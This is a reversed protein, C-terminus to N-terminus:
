ARRPVRLREPLTRLTLIRLRRAANGETADVEDRVRKGLLARGLESSLSVQAADLPDLRQTVLKYFRDRGGPDRAVLVPGFGARDHWVTGPHACALGAALQRLFRLERQIEQPLLPTTAAGPHRRMRELQDIERELRDALEDLPVVDARPAEEIATVYM